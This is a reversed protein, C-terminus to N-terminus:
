SPLINVGAEAAHRIVPSNSMLVVGGLFPSLSCLTGLTLLFCGSLGCGEWQPLDRPIQNEFVHNMSWALRSSSNTRPKM